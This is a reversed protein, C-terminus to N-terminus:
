LPESGALANWRGGGVSRQVDDPRGPGPEQDRSEAAVQVLEDLGVWPSAAASPSCVVILCASQAIAARVASTLDAAATM